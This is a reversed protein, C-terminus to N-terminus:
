KFRSPDSYLKKMAEKWSPINTCEFHTTEVSKAIEKSIQIAKLHAGRRIYDLM